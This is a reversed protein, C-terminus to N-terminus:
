GRGEFFFEGFVREFVSTEEVDISAEDTFDDVESFMSVLHKGLGVLGVGIALGAIDIV